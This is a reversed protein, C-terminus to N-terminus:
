DRRGRHRRDWRRRVDTMGSTGDPNVCIGVIM